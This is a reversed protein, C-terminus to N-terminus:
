IYENKQKKTKKNKQKEVTDAINWYQYLCASFTDSITALFNHTLDDDFGGNMNDICIAGVIMNYESGVDEAIALASVLCANYYKSWYSNLNEYDKNNKLDNCYYYSKSNSTFIEKFATNGVIKYVPLIRDTTERVRKSVNDRTFTLAYMIDLINDDPIIDEDELSDSADNEEFTDFVKISVSTQDGTLVDFLDKINSVVLDTYRGFDIEIENIFDDLNEVPGELLLERNAIDLQCLIDRSYHAINHIMIATKTNNFKIKELEADLLAFKYQGIEKKGNRYSTIIILILMGAFLCFFGEIVGHFISILEKNEPTRCQPSELAKSAIYLGVISAFVGVWQVSERFFGYM